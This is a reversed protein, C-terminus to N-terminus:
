KVPNSKIEVTVERIHDFKYVAVKVKEGEQAFAAGYADTDASLFHSSPDEKNITVAIQKPFNNIKTM